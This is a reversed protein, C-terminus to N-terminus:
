PARGHKGGKPRPPVIACGGPGSPIQAPLEAEGFDRSMFREIEPDHNEHYEVTDINRRHAGKGSEMVARVGLQRQMKRQWEGVSPEVCLGPTDFRTKREETLWRNTSTVGTKLEQGISRSNTMFITPKKALVLQARTRGWTRLGYMCQDAEVVGVGVERMMTRICPLAWSRAHAPNGHVLVRGGELQKRYLKVM